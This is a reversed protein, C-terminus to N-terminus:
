LEKFSARSCQVRVICMNYVHLWETGGDEM